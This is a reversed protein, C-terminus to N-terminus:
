LFPSFVKFLFCIRNKILQRITPIVLTNIVTITDHEGVDVDMVVDACVVIGVRTKDEMSTVGAVGFFKAVPNVKCNVAVPVYESPELASIVELTFHALESVLIAVMEAAPKAVPTATPVVFIVAVKPSKVLVTVFKVITGAGSKDEMVTVGVVGALKAISEVCSNTAVPVYASRVVISIVELTVQVLESTLMAVIDEAPTAVPTAIPFILIVAAKDPIVLGTIFKVTTVKVNDEMSIVGATGALKAIPRVSCNIAVATLVSPEVASMVESTVQTLELVSTAVIDNFPNAVPILSPLVSIVAVNEPNVLGTAVNGTAINDEIATDGAAGASKITPETWRNTATPVKEFPITEIIVEGTIQVLEFVPTAVMDESPITVPIAAPLVSIVTAIDPNFLGATVKFTTTVVVVM